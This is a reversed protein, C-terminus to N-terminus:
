KLNTIELKDPKPLQGTHYERKIELFKRYKELHRENKM